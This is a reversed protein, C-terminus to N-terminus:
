TAWDRIMEMRVAPSWGEKNYDCSDVKIKLRTLYTDVSEELNWFGHRENKRPKCYAQFAKIVKDFTLENGKVAWPLMKYVKRVEKGNHSLM